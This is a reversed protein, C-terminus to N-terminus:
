KQQTRIDQQSKVLFKTYVYQYANFICMRISELLVTVGGIMPTFDHCVSGLTNNHWSNCVPRAPCRRQAWRMCTLIKKPHLM